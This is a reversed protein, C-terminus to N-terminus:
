ERTQSLLEAFPSDKIIACDILIASPIAILAYHKASDRLAPYSRDCQGVDDALRDQPLSTM